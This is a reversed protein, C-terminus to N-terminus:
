KIFDEVFYWVDEEEMANWTALIIDSRIYGHEM